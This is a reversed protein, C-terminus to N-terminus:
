ARLWRVVQASVEEAQEQLLFHGAKPLMVEEFDGAFLSRQEQGITPSICGDDQGHLYLTPTSIPARRARWLLRLAERPQRLMARYYEVPAPMSERLCSKLRALEEPMAQYGPSWERWLRDILAFNDRALARDAFAGLQFFGMYWSKRLQGPQTLLKGLFRAPHPVSLAVARSIRGPETLLAGFLSVAGWDHGMVPAARGPSLVELWALVDAALQGIHFPGERTSPAYGRLYPAVVSFGAEVLRAAVRQYSHPMDPFGHLCLVPPAARDGARLGAFRGTRLQLSFEEM